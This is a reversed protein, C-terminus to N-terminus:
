IEIDSVNIKGSMLKPLLSDRLNELKLNEYQLNLIKEFYPLCLINFDDIVEKPPIYCPTTLIEKASVNSQASGQGRNIIEKIVTEQSLTCYLFPLKTIPKDTLFFKGVRQNVLFYEETKPVIAFKGLTAGTMAIVIDGEQVLFNSAINIKDKSVCSSDNLNLSGNMISKIKIVKIGSEQWWSSKFAFGSKLDCYDNIEGNLQNKLPEVILKKFLAMAQDELNDNIQNNILIKDDINKLIEGIILREKRVKPIMVELNEIDKKNVSSFTTGNQISCLKPINAKLLYYLFTQENTKSRISCLGRGLCTTCELINMEGVPARVSMIIDNPEGVKTVKTTFIDYSPYRLGFTRNGQLFPMGEKENYYCSKPSQGMTIKAIEKLCVVESDM